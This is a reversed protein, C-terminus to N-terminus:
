DKEKALLSPTILHERPDQCFILVSCCQFPCRSHEQQVDLLPHHDYSGQSLGQHNKISLINLHFLPNPIQDKRGYSQYYNYPYPRTRDLIDLHSLFYFAPKKRIDFTEFLCIVKFINSKKQYYFTYSILIGRALTKMSVLCLCYTM